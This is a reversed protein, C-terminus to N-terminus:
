SIRRKEVKSKKSPTPIRAVVMLKQGFTCQDPGPFSMRVPLVPSYVSYDLCSHVTCMTNQCSQVTCVIIQVSISQVCQIKAPSTQVCQLRSLFTGVTIQVFSSQVGQLRSLFLRYLAPLSMSNKIPCSQVTCVPTLHLVYM